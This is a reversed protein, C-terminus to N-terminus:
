PSKKQEAAQLAEALNGIETTKEFVWEPMTDHVMVETLKREGRDTSLMIDGFRQWGTWKSKMRPREDTAARYYEWQEILGSDDAILIVYRNEPTMGTGEDFTVEIASAAAGDALPQRGLYKLRVGPELLKYPMFLWYSDNTWLFEARRQVNPDPEAVGDIWLKREGTGYDIIAVHRPDEARIRNRQKDWVHRRGNFFRFSIYKVDDWAKQGGMSQLTQKALRVAMEDSKSADFVPTAPTAPQTTAGAPRTTQAAVATTAALALGVALLTKMHM